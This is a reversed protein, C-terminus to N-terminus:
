GSDELTCFTTERNTPPPPPLPPARWWCCCCNEAYGQRWCPQITGPLRNESTKGEEISGGGGGRWCTSVSATTIPASTPPAPDRPRLFAAGGAGGNRVVVNRASSAQSFVVTGSWTQQGRWGLGKREKNLDCVIRGKKCEWNSNYFCILSYIIGIKQEQSASVLLTDLCINNIPM